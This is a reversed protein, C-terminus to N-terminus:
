DLEGVLELNRLVEVLSLFCSCETLWVRTAYRRTCLLILYKLRGAPIWPEYM